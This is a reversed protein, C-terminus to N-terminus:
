VLVNVITDITHIIVVRISHSNSSWNGHDNSNRYCSQTETGAWGRYAEKSRIKPFSGGLLGKFICFKRSLFLMDAVRCALYQLM